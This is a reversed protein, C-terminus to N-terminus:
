KSVYHDSICMQPSIIFVKFYSPNIACHCVFKQYVNFPSALITEQSFTILSTEDVQAVICFLVYIKKLM